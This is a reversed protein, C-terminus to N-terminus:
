PVAIWARGGPPYVALHLNKIEKRVVEVPVGSVIIQHRDTIM